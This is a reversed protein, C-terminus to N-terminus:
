ELTWLPLNLDDEEDERAVFHRHVIPAAAKRFEVIDTVRRDIAGDADLISHPDDNSTFFVVKPRWNRFDGKVPVRMPYRDLLQLLFPRPFEDLRLDDFLVRDEGDYGGIFSGNAAFQLPAAGFDVAARTKGTDPDGYLLVVQLGNM